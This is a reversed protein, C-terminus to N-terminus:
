DMDRYSKASSLRRQKVFYVVLITVIILIIISNLISMVFGFFDFPSWYISLSSLCSDPTLCVQSPLTAYLVAEQNFINMYSKVIEQINERNIESNEHYIIMYISPESITANNSGKWQGSANFYTLGDPFLPTVETDLFNKFDEPTVWGTTRNPYQISLGFLLESKVWNSTKLPFEAESICVFTTVFFLFYCLKNMRVPKQM